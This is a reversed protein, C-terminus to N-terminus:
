GRKRQYLMVPLYIIQFLLAISIVFGIVWVHGLFSYLPAAEAPVERLFLHNADILFNIPYMIGAYILLILSSKLLDKYTLRFQKVVLLYLMGLFFIGHNYFYHFYRFHPFTYELNAFFLSILAGAIAWPFIFKFIKESNFWLAIATFYM